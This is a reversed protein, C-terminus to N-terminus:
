LVSDPKIVLAAAIALDTSHSLSLKIILDEIGSVAVQPVGMSNNIIEIDGMEIQVGFDFFAKIVAEKGAFRVALHPKPDTKSKCYELEKETFIRNQLNPDDLVKQFRKIEECDIGISFNM